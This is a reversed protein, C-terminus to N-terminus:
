AGTSCVVEIVTPRDAALARTVADALGDLGHLRVGYGNCAVGLAPFDPGSINVGILDIGREIQQDRIEAFGSNNMIIVPLALGQEAATVLELGTFQFGGDGVLVIVPLEPAALKAGIAAPLGYGLTAYGTPYLFRNPEDMPWFHVTGYYSVQASDGAVITARPLAARLVQQVERWPAGDVLAAVEIEGRAAGARAEGDSGLANGVLATLETLIAAAEGELGITAALNKDLQGPDIDIRIVAGAPAITGGWLDSDGLESGVILLVDSENLLNQAPALRISAGLSLTHDEPIIGKGHVTTVVPADLLEALRLVEAGARRAGGGALISIRRSAGLTSAAAAIKEASPHEVRRRAVAPGIEGPEWVEELLDLPIELHVPRPRGVQWRDFIEAIIPGIEDIQSVRVSHELLANLHGQQDKVEHLWGVNKGELGRPIGPSIVLLPVSDAYATAAATTANTLGPGSTTIVVGPRGSVRAYGDAAYGAGQEHRPTIHRIGSGALARYIELNHTGPIGFVVEVGERLLAEVVAVGGNRVATM